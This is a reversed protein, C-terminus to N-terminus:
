FVELLLLEDEFETRRTIRRKKGTQLPATGSADAALAIFTAALVNPSATGDSTASAVAVQVSFTASLVANNTNATGTITSAQVSFVSSLVSASIIADGIVATAQTTFVASLVSASTLADGIFVGLQLSFVSSSVAPTATGDTGGGVLITPDRLRVDNPNPEGAYLYIDPM